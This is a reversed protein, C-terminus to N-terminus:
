YPLSGKGDTFTFPKVIESVEGVVKKLPFYAGGEKVISEICNQPASFSDCAATVYQAGRCTDVLLKSGKKVSFGNPVEFLYLKNSDAHKVFIITM